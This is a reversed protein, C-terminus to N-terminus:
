RAVKTPKAAPKASRSRLGTKTKARAAEYQAIFAEVTVRGLAEGIVELALDDVSKFHLCSKGMDLKKGAARYAKEFEERWGPVAYVGMLYLTMNGKQSALAAIGLPQGNYTIPYRSLPIAWGIMGYQMGEEFGAPLRKRVFDRVVAIAERRGPPLSKLYEEVTKAASSVM